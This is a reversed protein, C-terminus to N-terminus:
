GPLDGGAWHEVAARAIVTCPTAGLDRHAAFLRRAIEPADNGVELVHPEAEAALEGAISPPLGPDAARAAAAVAKADYTRNTSPVESM